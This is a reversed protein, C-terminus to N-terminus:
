WKGRSLDTEKRDLPLGKDEMGHFYEKRGKGDGMRKREEGVDGTKEKIGHGRKRQPM